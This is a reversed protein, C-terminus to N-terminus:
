GRADDYVVTLEHVGPAFMWTRPLAVRDTFVNDSAHTWTRGDTSAWVGGVCGALLRQGDASVAFIPRFRGVEQLPLGSDM